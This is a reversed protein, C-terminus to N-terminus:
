TSSTMAATRPSATHSSGARIELEMLFWAFVTLSDRRLHYLWIRAVASAHISGASQRKHAFFRSRTGPSFTTKNKSPEFDPSWVASTPHAIESPYTNRPPTH